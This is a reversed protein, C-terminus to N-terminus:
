TRPARRTAQNSPHGPTLTGPAQIGPHRSAQSDPQVIGAPSLDRGPAFPAVPLVPRGAPRHDRGRARRRPPGRLAVPPRVAGPLHRRHDAGLLLRVIHPVMMGVFGIPGTVSVVGAVTLSTVLFLAVKVRGVAVGRSAALDDGMLLLNLERSLYVTVAAGTVVFPLVQFVQQFGFVNLGGMVWHLIQISHGVRSIYQIFMLLSSCFFSVAVGALLMGATSLGRRVVSLGYVISIAGLAGVFAFLTIGPFGPLDLRLESRIYIAAGLSAGSAVGLTFPTALPNRFMAQFTMGSVALGSGALFATLVQPVRIKWFILSQSSTGGGAYVEWPLAMGGYLPALALTLLTLLALGALAWGV